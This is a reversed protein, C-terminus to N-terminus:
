TSVTFYCLCTQLDLQLPMAVHLVLVYNNASPLHERFLMTCRQLLHDLRLYIISSTAVPLGPM